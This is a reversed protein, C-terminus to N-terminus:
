TPKIHALKFVKVGWPFNWESDIKTWGFAAIEWEPNGVPQCTEDECVVFLQDTVQDKVKRYPADNLELFYAYSKDYNRKAILAFNFPKGASKEIVFQSITRTRSLQNNPPTQLPNNQISIIAITVFIPVSLYKLAKFVFGLLLFVAPFLFGYYHSYIHQKYLGLGILGFTVWALVFFQDLFNFRKKFSLLTGIPFLISIISSFLANRVGFLAANIDKWIPWLNPIAKYAKFNVTTQRNSFFAIIARSNLFNHRLDFWLLPSMLLLFIIAALAIHKKFGTKKPSLAVFLVITPALLLGLYHSQLVFAFSVASAVLWRWYGFKAVKWIGYMTLLAFFPMVNPNWSSRSYIITTSSIAYLTSVALAEIRGFWQRGAWWILAITALSFLAVMVAPGVPSYNFLLLPPLMLYYYLPGLYMNGVSTQPGILAPHLEQIMRRVILVDRGEDGLFTLYQDIKYLRLFGGVLLIVVLTALEWKFVARGQEVLIEKKLQWWFIILERFAKFIVKPNGGTSKGATRPLHTVPLEAISMGRARAGAFLQTDIMAGNSPLSIKELINRRFLKFGCDVDTALYGFLARVITNWGWRFIRRHFPDSDQTRIGSVIDANTQSQKELLRKIESFDFQNDSPVFAIFDNKAAYFGTKLSGGYGQNPNNEIVRTNPINKALIKAVTGTKDKSGDNVIIIEWDLSKLGKLAKFLNQLCAAINKEENYAPVVVSLSKPM